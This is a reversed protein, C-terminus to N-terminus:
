KNLLREYLKIYDKIMREQTFNDEVHRRCTNRDIEGIRSVAEVIGEVGQKKIIWSGKGPRDENDPDVIFGTKGDEVVEALAGHNYAIVPTGCAMAEAAVLGFQEELRTPFILAKANQYLELRKTDDPVGDYVISESFYPDVNKEIFEKDDPLIAKGGAVLLKFRGVTAADMADKIGKGPVLRSLFLFYDESKANFPFPSIDIGHLIVESDFLGKDYNQSARSPFVVIDKGKVVTETLIKKLNPYQWFHNHMTTVVPLKTFQSFATMAFFGFYNNHIIDFESERKIIEASQLLQYPMRIEVNGEYVDTTQTSSCVSVLKASTKSDSTAFLTTDVGQKVLGEALLHAFAETGGTSGSTIAKLLSAAIAIRM